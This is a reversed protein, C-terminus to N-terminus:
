SPSAFFWARAFARETADIAPTVVRRTKVYEVSLRQGAQRLM